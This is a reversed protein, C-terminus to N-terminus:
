NAADRFVGSGSSTITVLEPHVRNQPVSNLGAWGGGRNSLCCARPLPQGEIHGWCRPHGPPGERQKHRQMRERQTETDGERITCPCWVYCASRMTVQIAETLGLRLHLWTRLDRLNPSLCKSRPPLPPDCYLGQLSTKTADQVGTEPVCGRVRDGAQPSHVNSVWLASKVMPATPRQSRTLGPQSGGQGPGLASRTPCCAVQCPSGSASHLASVGTQVGAAQLPAWIPAMQPVRIGKAPVLCGGGAAKLPFRHARGGPRQTGDTLRRSSHSGWAPPRAGAAWAEVQFM